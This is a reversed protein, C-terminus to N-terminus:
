WSCIQQQKYSFYPPQTHIASSSGRESESAFLCKSIKRVKKKRPLFFGLYLLNLWRLFYFDLAWLKYTTQKIKYFHWLVFFPQSGSSYLIACYMLSYLNSQFLSFIWVRFQNIRVAPMPTSGKCYKGGTPKGKWLSTLWTRVSQSCLCYMHWETSAKIWLEMYHWLHIHVANQQLRQSDFGWGARWSLSKRQAEVCWAM